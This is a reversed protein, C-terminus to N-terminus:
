DQAEDAAPESEPAAPPKGARGSPKAPEDALEPEIEPEAQIRIFGAALLAAHDGDPADDPVEVAGSEDVRYENGSPCIAGSNHKPAQYRNSM